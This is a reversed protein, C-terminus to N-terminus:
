QVIVRVGVVMYPTDARAIALLATKLMNRYYFSFLFDPQLARIREVTDAANPDDPTIVPLNHAAALEAVSDFWIKEAPNDKHTVVLAVDVKHTLLVSLCKVGVNHYAFVVARTM